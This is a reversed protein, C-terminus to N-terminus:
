LTSNKKSLVRRPTCQSSLIAFHEPGVSKKSEVDKGVRQASYAYAKLYAIIQAAQAYKQKVTLNPRFRPASKELQKKLGVKINTIDSVKCRYRSVISM